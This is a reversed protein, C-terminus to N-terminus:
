VHFRDIADHSQSDDQKYHNCKANRHESIGHSLFAVNTTVLSQIVLPVNMSVLRLVGRKGLSDSLPDLQLEQANYELYILVDDTYERPLM